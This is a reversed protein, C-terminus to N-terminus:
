ERSKKTSAWYQLFSVTSAALIATLLIAVSQGMKVSWVGTYAGALLVPQWGFLFLSFIPGYILGYITGSIVWTFPLFFVMMSWLELKGMRYRKRFTEKPESVHEMVLFLSRRALWVASNLVYGGGGLIWLSYEERGQRVLDWWIPVMFLSYYMVTLGFRAGWERSNKEFWTKKQLWGLIWDPVEFYSGSGGTYLTTWGILRRLFKEM